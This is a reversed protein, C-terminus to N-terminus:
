PVNKNLERYRVFVAIRCASVEIRSIVYRWLIEQQPIGDRYLPVEIADALMDATISPNKCSGEKKRDSCLLRVGPKRACVIMKAGCDGCYVLDSFWDTNKHLKRRQHLMQQILDFQEASVIPPIVIRQWEEAPLQRKRKCKYSIQETRHLMLEGKYAPNCLIHRVTKDSWVESCDASGKEMGPTPIRNQTLLAAIGRFSYGSRALLFIKEVIPILAAVPELSGNKKEYGYPVTALTCIGNRQRARLACRVKQSIDRAYWDDMVARLPTFDNNPMAKATDIGDSVAIYRVGHSPFWRELLEGTRIYDRSLRSLDKTIVTRIMGREIANLMQQFAPRQWATGSIGDDAYVGFVSFGNAAAYQELLYRQSAISESEADGGDERSLRLYLATDGCPITEKM